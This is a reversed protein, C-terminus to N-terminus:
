LVSAKRQNCCLCMPCVMWPSLKPLIIVLVLALALLIPWCYNETRIVLLSYLLCRSHLSASPQQSVRIVAAVHWERNVSMVSFVNTLPLRQMIHMLCDTPPDTICTGQKKEM